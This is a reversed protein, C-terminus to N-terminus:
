YQQIGRRDAQIDLNAQPAPVPRTPPGEEVAVTLLKEEGVLPRSADFFLWFITALVYVLTFSLFNVQWGKPVDTKFYDLVWGTAMGAMFGGLNGVTNMCGSVIGSYRRGIDICSAWASGMTMDNWFAALTIGLVFLYPNGAFTSGLYCLACLGHGVVGFLRRGWKRNGTRRIFWDTLLGGVLCALSGALLPAGALLNAPWYGVTRETVNYQEALYKPLWTINFYWGYAACFYMLCLVWLNGSTLIQKWPVGIHIDEQGRGADILALEAPNVSAHEGPDDRYWIWFFFCWILGLGGFVWFIHRWYIVPQGGVSAHIVIAGVLLPTIGGAFRGAMWVAGQALGREQVPFWSHFARSITPYAGAEGIGFFFRVALLALFGLRPYTVSPYIAGTLATFVSWWVVIRVLMRRAGFTDGLWGSPVEFAAYALAFASFLYGLQSNTLGFENQIYPAVKGFCVRDLYTVMSLVGCFALVGYRVQTPRVLLPLKGNM